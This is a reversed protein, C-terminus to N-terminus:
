NALMNQCVPLSVFLRPLGEVAYLSQNEGVFERCVVFFLLCNLMLKLDSLCKLSLIFLCRPRVTNLLPNGGNQSVSHNSLKNKM